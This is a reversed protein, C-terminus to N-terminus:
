KGTFNPFKELLISIKLMNLQKQINTFLSKVYRVHAYRLFYFTNQQSIILMNEKPSSSIPLNEFRCLHIKLKVFCNKKNWKLFIRWKTKSLLITRQFCAARTNIESFVKKRNLKLFIRWKVKSLIALYFFLTAQVNIKLINNITTM